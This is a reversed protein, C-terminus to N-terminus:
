KHNPSHILANLIADVDDLRELQKILEILVSHTEQVLPKASMSLCDSAKRNLDAESMPRSPHGLPKEITLSTTTGDEFEFVRKLYSKGSDDSGDM